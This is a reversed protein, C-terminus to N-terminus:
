NSEAAARGWSIRNWVREWLYYLTTKAIAATLGIKAAPALSGTFLYAIAFVTTTAFVRYSAAKVISRRHTQM